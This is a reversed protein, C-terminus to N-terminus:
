EDYIRWVDDIKIVSITNDSMLTVSCRVSTQPGPRGDSYYM